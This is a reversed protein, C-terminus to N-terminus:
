EGARLAAPERGAELQTRFREAEALRELTGSMQQLEAEMLGLRRDHLLLAQDAARGAGDAERIRVMADAIPRIAFRVSFALVPIAVVFATVVFGILPAMSMIETPTM